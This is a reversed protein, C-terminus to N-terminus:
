PPAATPKRPRGGPRKVFAKLDKPRIIWIPGTKTAPLRGKNILQLVRNQSIGLVGAVQKSTLLKSV